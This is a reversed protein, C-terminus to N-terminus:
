TNDIAAVKWGVGANSSPDPVAVYETANQALRHNTTTLMGAM